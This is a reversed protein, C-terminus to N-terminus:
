SAPAPTSRALRALRADVGRSVRVPSDGHRPWRRRRRRRLHHGPRHAYRRRGDVRRKEAPPGHQQGRRTRNSQQHRPGRGARSVTYTAVPKRQKRYIAVLDPLYYEGQNNATGLSDLAKFLPELAFAYIGSNIETIKRQADSADREEVIKTIRGGTRVIRGYGFPRPLNATIVTAAAGAEAHTDLLRASRTPRSCRRMARFCSWPARVKRGPGAPNPAVRPRNRAAPGPGRVAAAASKMRALAAKLPTPAM